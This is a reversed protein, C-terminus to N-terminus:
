RDNGVAIDVAVGVALVAGVAPAVVLAAGVVVGVVVAVVVVCGVDNVKAASAISARSSPHEYADVRACVHQM